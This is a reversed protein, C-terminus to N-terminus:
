RSEVTRLPIADDCFFSYLNKLNADTLLTLVAQTQITQQQQQKKIIKKWQKM